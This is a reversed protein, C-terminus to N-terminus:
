ELKNMCSVVDGDVEVFRVDYLKGDKRLVALSVNRGIQAKEYTMSDVEFKVTASSASWLCEIYHNVVTRHPVTSYHRTETYRNLVVSDMVEETTNELEYKALVNGAAIAGAPIGFALMCCILIIRM